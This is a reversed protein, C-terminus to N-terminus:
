FSASGDNSLEAAVRLGEYTFNVTVPDPLSRTLFGEVDSFNAWHCDLKTGASGNCLGCTLLLPRGGVSQPPVDELTFVELLSSIGLCIPCAYGKGRHEPAVKGFAQAGKLFWTQKSV